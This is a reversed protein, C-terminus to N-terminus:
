LQVAPDIPASSDRVAGVRGFGKARAAPTDGAVPVPPPHLLAEADIGGPGGAAVMGLRGAVIFSAGIASAGACRAGGRRGRGGGGGLRGSVIFSGSIESTWALRAASCATSFSM